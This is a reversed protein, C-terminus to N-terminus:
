LWLLVSLLSPLLQFCQMAVLDAPELCNITQYISVEKRWCKLPDKEASYLVSQFGHKQKKSRDPGLPKEPTVPNIVLSTINEVVKYDDPLEQYTYLRDAFYVSRIRCNAHIQLFFGFHTLTLMSCRQRRGDFRPM